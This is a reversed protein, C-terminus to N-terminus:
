SFDFNLRRHLEVLDSETYDGIALCVNDYDNIWTHQKPNSGSEDWSSSVYIRYSDASAQVSICELNCKALFSGPFVTRKLIIETNRAQKRISLKADRVTINAAVSSFSIQAAGAAISLEDGDHFEFTLINAQM